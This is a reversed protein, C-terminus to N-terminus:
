CVFACVCVGSSYLFALFLRGPSWGIQLNIETEVSRTTTIRLWEEFRKDVKAMAEVETM